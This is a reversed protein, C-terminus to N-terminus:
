TCRSDSNSDSNGEELCPSPVETEKCVVKDDIIEEGNVDTKHDDSNEESDVDTKDDSIKEGDVNVDTKDDSNKEVDQVVKKRKDWMSTFLLYVSAAVLSAISFCRFTNRVGIADIALGGILSGLAKGVGFYLAGM